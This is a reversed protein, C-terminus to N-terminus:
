SGRQPGTFVPTDVGGDLLPHLDGSQRPVTAVTDNKIKSLLL